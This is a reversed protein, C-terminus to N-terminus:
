EHPMNWDRDAQGTVLVVTYNFVALYWIEGTERPEAHSSAHIIVRFYRRYYISIQPQISPEIGFPQQAHTRIVPGSLTDYRAAYPCIMWLYM